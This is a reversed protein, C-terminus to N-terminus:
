EVRNFIHTGWSLVNGDESLTMELQTDGLEDNHIKVLYVGNSEDLLEYSGVRYIPPYGEMVYSGNEFRYNLYWSYGDTEGSESWLGDFAQPTKETVESNLETACSTMLFTFLLPFLIKKM